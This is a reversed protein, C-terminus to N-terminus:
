ELWEFIQKSNIDFSINCSIVSKIATNGELASQFKELYNGLVVAFSISRACYHAQFTVSCTTKHFFEIKIIKFTILLVYGGDTM